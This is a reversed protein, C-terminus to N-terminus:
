WRLDPDDLLRRAGATAAAVEDDSEPIRMYGDRIRDSVMAERSDALYARLARRMLESRSIGERAATEALMARERPSLQIM